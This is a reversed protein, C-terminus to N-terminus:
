RLSVKPDLAKGANRLQTVAERGTSLDEVGTVYLKGNGFVVGTRGVAGDGALDIVVSPTRGGAYHAHELESGLRVLEVDKGLSSSAIVNEVQLAVM